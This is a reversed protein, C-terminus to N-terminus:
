LTAAVEDLADKVIAFMEDLEAKDIILPPSFALSDNMMARGIVGKREMADVVRAGVAQAPAFNRRSAKDEVLELAGILGVGRAEGVLPHELLAALHAQLHAGMARAQAGIQREEYINLTELAVAAAVPHASYTYGHGFTGIKASNDAVAQYVRDSVMLASIPLYASSLAKACTLLDPAYDLTQSGWPTGTRHFGCIVEDAVTLVDYKRCVAQIKPFYSRPPVIVGGAGMVPEAFFAAVTEPGEALIQAELTAALRTAFAEDDEGPLAEHYAHPTDTYLIRAIPLDFDRQNAPLATLSAAAVTVGHYGKRRSIIKKKEPRGLANNYYWILKIATDNSESGSNAFLVKSMPVPAMEILRAALEIGPEHAKHSFQHAFPLAEMQRRAAEALRRESFGLSACWLGAMAEIYGKGQDDFVRVGQGRVLVLPGRSEHARLNTYPHLTYALDKDRLANSGM